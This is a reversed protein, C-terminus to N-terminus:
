HSGGYWSWQWEYKFIPPDDAFISRGTFIAMLGPRAVADTRWAPPKANINLTMRILRSDSSGLAYAVGPSVAMTAAAADPPLVSALCTEGTPGCYVYSWASVGVYLDTAERGVFVPRTGACSGGVYEVTAWADSGDQWGLHRWRWVRGQTDVGSLDGGGFSQLYSYGRWDGFQSGVVVGPDLRGTGPNERYWRLTGDGAVGYIVATADHLQGGYFLLPLDGGFSALIRQELYAYEPSVCFPQVILDGWRTVGYVQEAIDCEGTHAQAPSGTLAGAMLLVVM